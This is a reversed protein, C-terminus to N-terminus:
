RKWWNEGSKVIQEIRNSKPFPRLIETTEPRIIQVQGKDTRARNKRAMQPANNATKLRNGQAQTTKNLNRRKQAYITLNYAWVACATLPFPSLKLPFTLWLFVISKEDIGAATCFGRFAESPIFQSCICSGNLWQMVTYGQVGQFNCKEATFGDKITNEQM